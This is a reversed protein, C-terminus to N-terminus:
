EFKNLTDTSASSPAAPQPCTLTVSFATGDDDVGPPPVTPVVGVCGVVGEVGDVGDFGEFPVVGDVGLAVLGPVILGGDCAMPSEAVAVALLATSVVVRVV